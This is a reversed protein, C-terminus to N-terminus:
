LFAWEQDLHIVEPDADMSGHADLGAAIQRAFQIVTDVPPPGNLREREVFEMAIAGQEVGHITAINPHNVSALVRAEREFRAM